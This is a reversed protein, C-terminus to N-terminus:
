KKREQSDTHMCFFGMKPLLALALKKDSMPHTLSIIIVSSSQNQFIYFCCDVKLLFHHCITFPSLMRGERYFGSCPRFIATLSSRTDSRSVSTVSKHSLDCFQM